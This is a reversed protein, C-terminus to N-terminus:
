FFLLRQNLLVEKAGAQLTLMTFYNAILVLLLVVKVYFTTRTLPM